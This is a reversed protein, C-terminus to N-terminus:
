VPCSPRATPAARSWARQTSEEAADQIVQAELRSLRTHVEEEIERLTAKPHARRWAKIDTLIQESLQQWAHDTEQNVQCRGRSSAGERGVKTTEQRGRQLVRVSVGQLPCTYLVTFARFLFSRAPTPGEDESSSVRSAWNSAM